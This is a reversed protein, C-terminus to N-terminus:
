AVPRRGIVHSLPCWLLLGVAHLAVPTHGIGVAKGKAAGFELALSLTAPVLAAAAVYCILVQYSINAMDM